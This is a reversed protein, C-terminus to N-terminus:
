IRRKLANLRAFGLTSDFSPLREDGDGNLAHLREDDDDDENLAHLRVDENGNLAYLREDEDEDATGKEILGVSEAYAYLIRTVLQQHERTFVPGYKQQAEKLLVLFESLMMNLSMPTYGLWTGVLREVRPDTVGTDVSTRRVQDRHRSYM